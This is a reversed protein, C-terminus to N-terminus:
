EEFLRPLCKQHRLYSLQWELQRQGHTSCLEEARLETVFAILISTHGVGVSHTAFILISEM